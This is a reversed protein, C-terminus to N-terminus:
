FPLDSNTDEQTIEKIVIDIIEGDPTRFQFTGPQLIFENELPKRDAPNGTAMEYYHVNVTTTGSATCKNSDIFEPSKIKNLKKM